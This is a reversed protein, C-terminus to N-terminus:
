RGEAMCAGRELDDAAPEVVRPERAHGGEHADYPRLTAAAGGGLRHRSRRNPNAAGVMRESASERIESRDIRITTEALFGPVGHRSLLSRGAQRM